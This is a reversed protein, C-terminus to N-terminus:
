SLLALKQDEDFIKVDELMAEVNVGFLKVFAILEKLSNWEMTEYFEEEIEQGISAYLKAVLSRLEKRVDDHDKEKIKYMDEPELTSATLSKDALEAQLQDIYKTATEGDFQIIDSYSLKNGLRETLVEILEAQKKSLRTKRWENYRANFKGIYESAESKSLNSIEEESLADCDPCYQMNLITKYQRDTMPLRVKKSMEKLSQIMKSASGDYAGNLKSFDPLPMNMAECLETIRAKQKESVPKFYPLAKLRQIEKNIQASTMEVDSPVEGKQECLDTYYKIQGPTAPKTNITENNEEKTEPINSGLLMELQEKSMDKTM